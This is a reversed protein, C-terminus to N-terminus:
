GFSKYMIEWELMWAAIYFFVLSLLTISILQRKIHGKKLHGMEHALVALIEDRDHSLILTDYLVIRKSKGMGTFYANSHRSRKGADMQFVGTVSVGSREALGRIALELGKDEIPTFKNFIPAILTPYLVTILLQFGIFIAWAYLWWLNGTLKVILFFLSLLTGVLIITIILNKINDLVWTKLSTTNFRYKEEIVFISYYSFPLGIVSTMGGPIAFFLLGALIYHMEKLSQALWPLFGFLIIALFFLMGAINQLVSARTKDATYSTIQALRSEDLLGEFCAPAKMGNRKLHAANIIDLIIGAVSGSVYLLIYASLFCNITIM